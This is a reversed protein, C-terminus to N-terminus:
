QDKGGALGDLFVPTLPLGCCQEDSMLVPCGEDTTWDEDFRFPVFLGHWPCMFFDLRLDFTQDGIVLQPTSV